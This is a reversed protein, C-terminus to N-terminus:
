HTPKHEQRELQKAYPMWCQLKSAMPNVQTKVNLHLDRLSKESISIVQPQSTETTLHGSSLEGVEPAWAQCRAPAGLGQWDCQESYFPSLFFSFYILYIYIYIYIYIYLKLFNNFYCFSFLLWVLLCMWSHYCASFVLSLYVYFDIAFWDSVALELDVTAEWTWWRLKSFM